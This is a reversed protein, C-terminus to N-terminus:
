ECGVEGAPHRRARVGPVRNHATDAVYTNGSAPDVAVSGPSDLSVDGVELPGGLESLYTGDGWMRVVRGNARDAVYVAGRPDIGIGAPANFGAFHGGAATWQGLYEGSPSFREIRGDDTDSVFLSGTPDTALGEPAM